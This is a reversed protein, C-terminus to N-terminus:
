RGMTGDAKNTMVLNREDVRRVSSTVGPGANPMENPYGKGDFKLNETQHESPTIFSLGDGDFAKVEILYPSNM